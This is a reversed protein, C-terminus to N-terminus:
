DESEAEEQQEALAAALDSPDPEEEAPIRYQGKLWRALDLDQCRGSCFPRHAHVAPRACVPCPKAKRLRHVVADAM